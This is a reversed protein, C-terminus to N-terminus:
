FGLSADIKLFTTESTTISKNSDVKLLAQALAFIPIICFFCCLQQKKATIKQIATKQMAIREIAINKM